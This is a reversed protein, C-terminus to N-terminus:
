VVGSEKTSFLNRSSNIEAMVGFPLTINPSCHGINVNYLIPYDYASTYKLIIKKLQNKLEDSFKYPRGIILGSITKFVNSNDLDALFSDLTSIDFPLGPGSEPIDMIFLSDKPEIWFQTGLTHNISPVCGGLILGKASGEKWWEYGQSLNMNRAKKRNEEKFWDFFDDTWDKSSEINGYGGNVLTEIFSKKTYDIIKPYEGFESILCPGYFTRLDAKSYLAYHLVSIDSYGLFIKPNKKILEYDLQNLLQNCHDGGVSCIIGKVEPNSFASHIDEVRELVTGSVWEDRQLTHKEIKVRFGMEELTKVGNEVRFPFLEGLGSSPSIISILDGLQLKKPSILTKM